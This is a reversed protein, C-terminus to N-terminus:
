FRRQLQLNYSADYGRDPSERLPLIVGNTMLWEDWRASVGTAINVMDGTGANGVLYSDRPITGGSGLGPLVDIEQMKADSLVATYHLELVAALQMQGAGVVGEAFMYGGGLNLRLLAEPHIDALSGVFADYNFAGIPAGDQSFVVAGVGDISARSPNAAAEVQLFGQHFWRPAPTVVWALFPSLYVSENDFTSSFVTIGDATLGPDSFAVESNIGILSNFGQSSPLTVGLGASLAYWSQEVLLLKFILSINGLEARHSDAIFPDAIDDDPTLLSGVSGPTRYEIPVRIELSAARALIANEWALLHQDRNAAESFGHVNVSSANHLHRYSYYLRETPLPSNADAVSLRSGGLQSMSLSAELLGGIAVDTGPGGDGIMNPVCELAGFGPAPPEFISRYRAATISPSVSPWWGCSNCSPTAMASAVPEPGTVISPPPTEVAWPESAAPEDVPPLMILESQDADAAAASAVLGLWAALAVPCTTRRM